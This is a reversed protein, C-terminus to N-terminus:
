INADLIYDFREPVSRQACCSGMRMSYRTTFVVLGAYGAGAQFDTKNKAALSLPSKQGDLRRRIGLHYGVDVSTILREISWMVAATSEIAAVIDSPNPLTKGTYEEIATRWKQVSSGRINMYTIEVTVIRGM